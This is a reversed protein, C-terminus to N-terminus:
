IYFVAFPITQATAYGEIDTNEPKKMAYLRVKGKFIYVASMEAIHREYVVLFIIRPM